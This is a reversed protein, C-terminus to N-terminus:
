RPLTNSSGWPEYMESSEHPLATQEHRSASCVGEDVSFVVEDNPLLIPRVPSM